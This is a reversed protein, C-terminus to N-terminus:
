NKLINQGNNVSLTKNASTFISTLENAEKLLREVEINNDIKLELLIELWFCSEDAEEEVIGLKHIFTAKTKSRCAARYNAGVSAGARYLQDGIYWFDKGNPLSKM